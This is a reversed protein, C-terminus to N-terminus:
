SKKTQMWKKRNGPVLFQNEILNLITTNYLWMKKQSFKSIVKGIHRM